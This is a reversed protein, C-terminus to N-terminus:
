WIEKRVQDIEDASPAPGLDTLLGLLSKRPQNKESLGEEIEPLAKAIVKLQERPPLEQLKQLVEDETLDTM